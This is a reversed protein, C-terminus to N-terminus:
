TCFPSRLCSALVFTSSPHHQSQVAMKALLREIGTSGATARFDTVYVIGASVAPGAFGSRIRVRWAPELGAAPFKELIGSENWVGLRGKGRWEPWDEALAPQLFCLCLLLQKM